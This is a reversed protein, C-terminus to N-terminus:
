ADLQNKLVPKMYPKCFRIYTESRSAKNMQFDKILADMKSILSARFVNDPM